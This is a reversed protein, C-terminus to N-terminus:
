NDRGIKPEILYGMNKYWRLRRRNNVSEYSREVGYLNMSSARLDITRNFKVMSTTWKTNALCSDRRGLSSGRCGGSNTNWTSLFHWTAINSNINLWSGCIGWRIALRGHFHSLWSGYQVRSDHEWRGMGRYKIRCDVFIQRNLELPSVRNLRLSEARLSNQRLTVLCTSYWRNGSNSYLETGLWM